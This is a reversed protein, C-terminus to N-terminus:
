SNFFHYNFGGIKLEKLHTTIGYYYVLTFFFIATFCTANVKFATKVLKIAKKETEGLSGHLLSILGTRFRLYGIWFGVALVISGLTYGFIVEFVANLASFIFFFICVFIMISSIITKLSKNSIRRKLPFVKNINELVDFWSLVMQLCALGILIWGALFLITAPSLLKRQVSTNSFILSATEVVEFYSPDYITKFTIFLRLLLSFSGLFALLAVFFVPNTDKGRISKSRIFLILVGGLTLLNFLTWFLFFFYSFGFYYVTSTPTDCNEGVWGFWNSCDCFFVDDRFNNEEYCEQLVGSSSCNEADICSAMRFSLSFQTREGQRQVELDKNDVGM